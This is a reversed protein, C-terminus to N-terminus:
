RTPQEGVRVLDPWYQRAQDIRNLLATLVDASARYGDTLGSLVEEAQGPRAEPADVLEACDRAGKRTLDLARSWQADLGADPIRVHGLATGAVRDLQACVVRLRVGDITVKGDPGATEAADRLGQFFREFDQYAAGLQQVDAKGSLSFWAVFQFTRVRETGAPPPPPRQGAVPGALGSPRGRALAAAPGFVATTLVLLIVGVAATRARGPRQGVTASRESRRGPLARRVARGMLAALAALCGAPVVLQALLQSFPWSGAPVWHCSNGLVRLPGLCGDISGLAFQGALAVAHAVAAAILARLLWFRGSRGAVVAATVAVVAWLAGAVWWLYLLSFWGGREGQVPRIGHLGARVAAVAALGLLGGLLGACLAAGLGDVGRLRHALPYLWLATFAAVSLPNTGEVAVQLFLIGLSLAPGHEEWPGPSTLVIQERLGGAGLVDGATLLFGTRLWWGIAAVGPLAGVAVGIGAALLGGTRLRACQALWIVYLLAGLVLMLLVEPHAPLFHSGSTTGAMLDGTVLGLGLLLGSRVTGPTSRGQRAAWGVARWVTLAVAVAGPLAVALLATTNGTFASLTRAATLTVAGALFFQVPGLTHLAAEDQLSRRREAWTPHTRWLATLASARRGPADRASQWVGPDAGGALADADAHLERHRLLDARALVVLLVLFLPAAMARIVSPRAAPWFVQDAGTFMGFFQAAGLTLGFTLVTPVVVLPLFARWLATVAYALDVDRNRLHALEHLLVARFAAPDTPRTALLGAHLCVTYHGTRGFVVAGAGLAAPDVLFRPARRVGATRTLEALEEALRADCGAEQLTMLRRRRRRWGPLAFYLLVAVALVVATGVLGRGYSLSADSTLCEAAGRQRDTGVLLSALFDGDPDYGAAFLCLTSPIATPTLRTVVNLASISAVLMVVLLLVFRVTTGAPLARADLPARATM